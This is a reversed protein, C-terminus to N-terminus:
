KDDFKQQREVSDPSVGIVVANLQQVQPLAESLACSQTTCGPTDAKPYFYLVVREGKFQSLKLAKGHQDKLNIAPAKDGVELKVMM